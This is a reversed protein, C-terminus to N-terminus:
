RLWEPDQVHTATIEYFPVAEVSVQRVRVPLFRAQLTRVAIVEGLQAAINVSVHTVIVLFM